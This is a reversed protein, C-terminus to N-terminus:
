KKKRDPYTAVLPQHSIILDFEAIMKEMDIINIRSYDLTIFGQDCLHKLERGVSQRTAGVMQGLTEHPIDEVYISGNDLQRGRSLGLRIIVRALRERLPLLYADEVMMFVMQLRHCLLKNISIPIESYKKCLFDFDSRELVNVVTDECAVAYNVRDEGTILGLDGVCDGRHLNSLILEGGDVTYNCIKVRGSVIQYGSTSKDGSSYIAENASVKRLSLKEDLEATAQASLDTRWNHLNPIELM